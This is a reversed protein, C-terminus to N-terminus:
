ARRGLESFVVGCALGVLAGVFIAPGTLGLLKCAAVGLASTVGVVVNTADLKQSALLCIFISTMAFSSLAVPISLLEGAVAGVFNATGWTLMCLVNTLTGETVSWPEDGDDDLSRSLNVGYSEDTVTASFLGALLPSAGELYPALSTAYLLQRTNVFSISAAISLAPTGALWLNSLMFQGAGSYYTCSLVFAQLGTLGASSALIGCPVGITAYGLMVPLAAALSRKFTHGFGKEM